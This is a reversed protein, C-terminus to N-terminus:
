FDSRKNIIKGLMKATGLRIPIIIDLLTQDRGIIFVAVGEEALATACARGLGQSSAGVLATKGSLGLDMKTKERSGTKADKEDREMVRPLQGLRSRVCDGASIYIM